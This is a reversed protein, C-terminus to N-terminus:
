SVEEPALLEVYHRAAWEPLGYQEQLARGWESRLRRSLGLSAVHWAPALLELALRDANREAEAIRGTAYRGSRQRELVHIDCHLSLSEVVGVIREEITAMRKGDFAELAHEGLHKEVRRRPRWYDRLFHALEHALTFRQEAADDTAHIFALGFGDCAVLLGHVRRDAADIALRKGQRELWAAACQITLNPLSVVTLPVARAIASRLDRPFASPAGAAAWFEAALQAAWQPIKM